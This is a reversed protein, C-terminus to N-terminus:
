AQMKLLPIRQEINNKNVWVVLGTHQINVHIPLDTSNTKNVIAATKHTKKQKMPIWQITKMSFCKIHQLFVFIM